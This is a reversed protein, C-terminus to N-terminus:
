QDDSLLLRYVYYDNRVAQGQTVEVRPYPQVARRWTCMRAM